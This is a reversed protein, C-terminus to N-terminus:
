ATSVSRTKFLNAVSNPVDCRNYLNLEIDGISFHVAFVRNFKKPNDIIAEVKNALVEKKFVDRLVRIGEADVEGIIFNAVNSCFSSLEKQRMINLNNMLAIISLNDSRSGSAIDSIGECLALLEGYRQAEEAFLLTFLDNKKNLKALRKTILMVMYIRVKDIISVKVETNKNFNFSIVSYSLIEQLQLNRSNDNLRYTLFAEALRDTIIKYLKSEEASDKQTSVYSLLTKFNM